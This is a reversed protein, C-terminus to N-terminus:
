WYPVWAVNKSSESAHKNSSQPLIQINPFEIQFTNSSISTELESRTEM